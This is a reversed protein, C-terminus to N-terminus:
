LCALSPSTFVRQYVSHENLTNVESAKRSLYRAEKKQDTSEQCFDTANFPQCPHPRSRRRKKRRKRKFVPTQLWRLIEQSRTPPPAKTNTVNQEKKKPDIAQLCQVFDFLDSLSINLRVGRM